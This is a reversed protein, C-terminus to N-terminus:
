SSRVARRRRRRLAAFVLAGAGAFLGFASPEPVVALITTFTELRWASGLYDFSVVGNEATVAMSKLSEDPADGVSGTNTACDDSDTYYVRVGGDADTEVGWCTLAHGVSGGNNIALGIMYDNEFLYTLREAVDAATATGPFAWVEVVASASSLTGAFYGGSTEAGAKPLSAGAAAAVEEYDLYFYSGDLWWALGTEIFGPGDTWNECFTKYIELQGRDAYPADWKGDPTGAPVYEPGIRDQRWQLMNSAVAAWCLNYDSNPYLTEADKVAPAYTYHKVEGEVTINLTAPWYAKNVDYWGSELTVGKAFVIEARAAFSGCAFAAFVVAALSLREKM